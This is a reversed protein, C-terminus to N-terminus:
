QVHKFKTKFYIALHGGIYPRNRSIDLVLVFVDNGGEGWGVRQAWRIFINVGGGGGEGNYLLRTGLGLKECSLHRRLPSTCVALNNCSQFM